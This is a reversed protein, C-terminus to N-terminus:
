KKGEDTPGIMDGARVWADFDEGSVFGLELAAERLTVAKAHAHKAIFFQELRANVGTTVQSIWPDIAHARSQATPTAWPSM